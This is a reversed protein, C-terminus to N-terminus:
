PRPIDTLPLCSLSLRLKLAEAGGMEANGSQCGEAMLWAMCLPSQIHIRAIRQTRPVFDAISSQRTM